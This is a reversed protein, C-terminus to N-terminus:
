PHLLAPGVRLVLRLAQPTPARIFGYHEYFAAAKEHLADVVLYRFGVEQSLHVVRAAAETLVQGGLGSGQPSTDVALKGLLVAPLQAPMGRGLRRPLHDREIIYASLTYYALVHGDLDTDETLVFVRSTGKKQAALGESRLWTDLDTEGSDFTSIQHEASLPASILM